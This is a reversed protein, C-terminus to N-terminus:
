LTEKPTSSKDKISDVFSSITPYGGAVRRFADLAMGKGETILFRFQTEISERDVIGLNWSLTVIELMNLYSIVNYRLENLIKGDLTPESMNVSCDKCEDKSLPCFKCVNKVMAQRLAFPKSNYLDKCEEESLKRVLEEAMSFEKNLSNCWMNMINITNERRHEEHEEKIQKRTLSLQRIVLIASALMILLESISLIIQLAM